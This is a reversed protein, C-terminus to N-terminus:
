YVNDRVGPRVTVTTNASAIVKNNRKLRLMVRYRGASRFVHESSFRRTIQSVGAEYPECDSAEESRTLDGWDWEVAACYFTQADDPGGRLEAVARVRSPSFSVAPTARISLAPKKDKDEADGANQQALVPAVVLGLAVAFGSAKWM